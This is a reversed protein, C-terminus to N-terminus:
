LLPFLLFSETGLLVVVASQAKTRHTKKVLVKIGFQSSQAWAM